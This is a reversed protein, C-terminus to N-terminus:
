FGYRLKQIKGVIGLGSDIADMASGVVLNFDTVFKKVDDHPLADLCHQMTENQLEQRRRLLAQMRQSHYQNSPIEEIEAALVRMELEYKAIESKVRQIQVDTLRVNNNHAALRLEFERNALDLKEQNNSIDAQIKQTQLAQATAQYDLVGQSIANRTNSGQIQSILAQNRLSNQEMKQLTLSRNQLVDVINRAQDAAFAFAQAGDQATSPVSSYDVPSPASGATGGDINAFQPNIGADKLRQIQASPLNYENQMQWLAINQEYQRNLMDIEHRQQEHMKHSSTFLAM